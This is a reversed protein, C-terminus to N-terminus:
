DNSEYLHYTYFWPIIEAAQLAARKYVGTEIQSRITNMWDLWPVFLSGKSHGTSDAVWYRANYIITGDKNIQNRDQRKLSYPLAM